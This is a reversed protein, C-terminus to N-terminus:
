LARNSLERRLQQDITAIDFKSIGAVVDRWDALDAVNAPNSRLLERKIFPFGSLLLQRWLEGTPNMPVHDVVAHRLRALHGRRADDAPDADIYHQGPEPAPRPISRLLDNYNWAADCRLGARLMAQTLGIEYRSIVYDRSQMLRVGDWFQRWAASQLAAKGVALFYSQLHYGHQWSDTAGWIDAKTFDIRDLLTHLPQLPGFVSDNAIVLQDTSDRPLGLLRLADRVAGFDYGVNRRCIIAACFSKLVTLDTDALSPCNSVFAIAYGAEALARAYDLTFAQVRCASDFHVFVAIKPGLAVDSAPWLSTIQDGQHLVSALRAAAHSLAKGFRRERKPRRAFLDHGRAGLGAFDLRTLHALEIQPDRAEPDIDYARAYAVLANKPRNQLKLVHGLHLWHDASDPVIDIARRYAAEARKFLRQEKLAHGFQVWISALSPDLKLAQDYCEACLKWNRAANAADGAVLLSRLDAPNAGPPVNVVM